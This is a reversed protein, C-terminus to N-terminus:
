RDAAPELSVTRHVVTIDGDQSSVANPPRARRLSLGAPFDYSQDFVQVALPSRGVADISFQVGAAPLSVFDILTARGALKSLKARVTGAPASLELDTVHAGAPFVVIAEPAGRASRLYLEFHTLSATSGPASAPQAVRVPASTLSLQPAALALNPADAYFAPASSGAFRPHPVPDFHAAAALAAPLRRSDCLALYHSRGTDADFWYELNIREPWDASYTPLSSAVLAGALALSAAAALVGRRARMTAAALLPLLTATGLCLVLTSLPWALSGLAAYLFRMLPLVAAFFVLCPLLAALDTTWRPPVRSRMLGLHPLAGLAFAISTLLLPFSAGPAAAAAAVSLLAGLLSAAVWFGWFGARRALWAGAAGAALLAISAAAIHMPLPQAIWSSGGLPPVKGVAVAVALLAACLAVGSVLMGLTGVAGWVVARTNTANRRVLMRAEALLLLIALLAAPVTYAAPWAILRLTLADFFVSEALPPRLTPANALATLVKLAGDGQQQISGADANAVNDLPTHYRGVNGIFAFNFGQMGASKFVTFDTDNPLQKYVVYYLSNTVPRAIASAYLGMLWTNAAGTEFMFSPGSTGRAELNVAARVQKALRHEHVFLSAGLLGAEEGDSLLVVVPHRPPPRAALIRAIELVTAVGAGDDSAGPGAPVSDYHAALLVAEDDRSVPSLTAVINIPSGCAGGACVLGSQLESSYGMATLRKLIAERVQAGAPSGVPHPVGNGVLDELIATARHASFEGNPADPGRPAPPRYAALTAALLVAIGALALWLGRNEAAM